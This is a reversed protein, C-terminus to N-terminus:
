LTEVPVRSDAEPTMAASNPSPVSDTDIELTPLESISSGDNSQTDSKPSAAVKNVDDCTVKNDDDSTVSESQDVSNPASIASVNTQEVQDEWSTSEPTQEKKDPTEQEIGMISSEMLSEVNDGEEDAGIMTLEMGEVYDSCM